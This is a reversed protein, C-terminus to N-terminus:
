KFTRTSYLSAMLKNNSDALSSDNNCESYSNQNSDSAIKADGVGNKTM